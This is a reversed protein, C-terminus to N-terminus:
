LSTLNPIPNSHNIICVNGQVMKIPITLSYPYISCPLTRVMLLIVAPVRTSPIVVRWLCPVHPPYVVNTVVAPPVVQLVESIFHLCLLSILLFFSLVTLFCTLLPHQLDSFCSRDLLGNKILKAHIFANKGCGVIWVSLSLVFDVLFSVLFLEYRQCKILITHFFHLFKRNEGFVSFQTRLNHTPTPWTRSVNVTVNRCGV